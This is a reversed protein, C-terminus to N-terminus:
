RVGKASSSFHFKSKDSTLIVPKNSGPMFLEATMGDPLDIDISIKSDQGQSMNLCLLGSPTPIKAKVFRLNGIQPEIIVSRFGPAAPRVGLLRRVIINGAAAGWAHNWDLNPKYVNDWAETTITSGMRLMNWWSRRETSRLLSLAYGARHQEYLADLLFQAGYVSCAMRRSECFDAVSRCDSGEVMGFALPFMNAHLSAHRTTDGDCFIGRNSDFFQKYFARKVDTTMQEYQRADGQLGLAHAIKGMTELAAYYYANVVANYRCFVFGDAEGGNEKEIGKAGSQPWDVIDRLKKGRFYVSNLISRTQRGTTTSILHTSDALATLAKAQLDHYYRRLLRNDGTYLYDNWALQPTILIWETPWTPNKILHEVSHRAMSYENDVAYHSLQNVYADAEYAIRERDGDVYCGCFSTAKMSHKCLAWVANLVSDSSEFAAANDDFPEHVATRLIKVPVNLGIIEAYRFPTVEGIYSPMLVPLSGEGNNKTAANRADKRLQLTYSRQGPRIALRYASCRITGQPHMDVHNGRRNEGLLVTVTDAVSPDRDLDLRLTGFNDLGFDVFISDGKSLEKRPQIIDYTLPYTAFATDTAAKTTFRQPTAWSSHRGGADTLQVTWYYSSLPKLAKGQYTVPYQSFSKQLGSDWYDAKGQKLRDITSAVLIRWGKSKSLTRDTACTWSFTPRCSVTAKQGSAFVSDPYDLLDVRLHHPQPTQDKMKPFCSFYEDQLEYYPRYEIGEVGQVKFHLPKGEIPILKSGIQQPTYPLSITQEGKLNVATMMVPGVELCYHGDQFGPEMGTYCTVKVPMPLTFSVNDGQSWTRDLVVYAGPKGTVTKKGNVFLSVAKGTWLPIRFYLKTKIPEDSTIQVEVKGDEPFRTNTSLSFTKGNLSCHFDSGAYMDIYVCNQATSYLYEPLSGYIRTGQGECCTNMMFDPGGDHPSDKHGELRAFYRIGKTGVQNPIIVNYISKEMEAVYKEENPFIHHFRQNLKVWFANGCLEGSQKHLWLSKPQYLFPGENISLSGGPFEWNDHYLDWGGEVADLYKKAGTALYLDMYAELATVLYNHPRDYPYRWIADPNRTALSDMWWNDQFYRQVTYIDEAKGVPSLYTRTIPIIGQVGQTARRLMEPLFACHDFWDYFGRLLTFAKKNGAYGAELLGQSIWSRSYAGREGIFMTHKPFAMCYGDPEKCQDIVDVIDNMEKRLATNDMWRLTNGAGMLLRGAASGPLEKMWFTQFKLNLPAVPLGAKLRFNRVLEDFTFSHLLYDINNQMVTKFLGDHLTVGTLPTEIINKVPKWQAQPVVNEPHDNVVFEGAPRDPATLTALFKDMSPSSGTVRCGTSIVKGDRFIQIKSLALKKDRLLTATLRVYRGTCSRTDFTVTRDGPDPQKGQSTCDEYVVSTSFDPTDSVSLLYKGPFGGKCPGWVGTAPFLKIADIRQRSGLDIQVWRETKDSDAMSYFCPVFAKAVREVGMGAAAVEKQESFSFAPTADVMKEIQDETKDGVVKIQHSGKSLTLARFTWVIGSPDNCKDLTEALKGDVYLQLRPANSYVKFAYPQGAQLRTLRRSTIYVTEVHHNWWAKYLYFVDKKIKRDRTVLGKDNIYKRNENVTFHIGDDSDFYGEKRDAVPFDFLVWASTFNLFPMKMIQRVHEEHVMNAWEEYHCIDAARLQTTDNMTTHCFPNNGAGYESLNCVGMLKNVKRMEVGIHAPDTKNYYWGNYRNESYFDAKLKTYGSREYLSCDTLGVYRQPDLNKAIEYLKASETVVRPFDVKGQLKDNNGWSDIENWMGWFVISPHNYLSTIMERMQSHIHDFYAPQARVGCVDVWPIETQVIIGLSDCLRYEYDQHPYHALRLFNCGLEQIIRYDNDIDQETVASAKGDLDQHEAVGRLPYPKGNLFFGKDSTVNYYRYGVKTSVRDLVQGKSDKMTVIVQYLYPDSLGNWLHPRSLTFRHEATQPEIRGAGVSCHVSKNYVRKGKADLLTYILTVSNTKGTCNSIKTSIVTTAQKDSVMPTSVHLRYLGTQEPSFYVPNMKLLYVPNHLGGNKNFDSNVPILNVDEHNDCTVVVTNEGEHVLANLSIWFPTYGGWHHVAQKGNVFVAAQQAAGEFLLYLPRQLDETTLRLTQRYYGKGRYYKPSHGDLANYSHPVIVDHWSLSDLSFSWRTLRISQWGLNQGCVSAVYFLLVIFISLLYKM